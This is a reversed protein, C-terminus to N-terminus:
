RTVETFAISLEDLLRHQDYRSPQQVKSKIEGTWNELVDVLADHGKIDRCYAIPTIGLQEYYGRLHDLIEAEHSLLSLVVFFRPSESNRESIKSSRVILDLIELEELGYGLFVVTQNKFLLKLKRQNNEDGYLKLYNETSAILSKEDPLAGHLHVLFNNSVLSSEEFEDLNKYIRYNVKKLKGTTNLESDEPKEIKLEEITSENIAPTLLVDSLLWDYNTTILKVNCESILKYVPIKKHVEDRKIDKMLISEYNLGQIENTEINKKFHYDAISIKVKTPRRLLIELQNHNLKKHKALKRLMKNALDDWSPVGFLRSVGNGIFFTLRGMIAADRIDPHLPLKDPQPLQGLM